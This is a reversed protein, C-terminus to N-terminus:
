LDLRRLLTVQFVGRCQTTMFLSVAAKRSLQHGGNPQTAWSGAATAFPPRALGGKARM